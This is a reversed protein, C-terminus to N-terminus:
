KTLAVPLSQYLSIYNKADSFGLEAARSAIMAYSTYKLIEARLILNKQELDKAHRALKPAYLSDTALRNAYHINVFELVVAACVLFTFFFYLTKM